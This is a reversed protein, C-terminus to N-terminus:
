IIAKFPAHGTKANRLLSPKRFRLSTELYFVYNGEENKNLSVNIWIPVLPSQCAILNVVEDLSLIRNGVNKESLAILRMQNDLGNFSKDKEYIPIIKFRIDEHAIKKGKMIEDITLILNKRFIIKNMKIIKEM